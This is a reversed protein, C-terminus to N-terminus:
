PTSFTPQQDWRAREAAFATDRTDHTLTFRGSFLSNDGLVEQLASMTSGEIEKVEGYGFKSHFVRQGVSIDGRGPNGFSVASARGEIVRPPTREFTGSAAARQGDNPTSRSGTAIRRSAHVISSIKERTPLRM